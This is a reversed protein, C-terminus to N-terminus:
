FGPHTIQVVYVRESRVRSAYKIGENLVASLEQLAEQAVVPDDHELNGNARARRASM